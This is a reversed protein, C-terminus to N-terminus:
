ARMLGELPRAGHSEPLGYGPRGGVFALIRRQGAPVGAGAAIATNVSL